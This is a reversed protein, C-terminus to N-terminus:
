PHLQLPQGSASVLRLHPEATSQINRPMDHRVVDNAREGIEPVSLYHEPAPNILAIRHSAEKHVTLTAAAICFLGFPKLSEASFLAILEQAAEPDSRDRETKQRVAAQLHHTANAMLSLMRTAERRLEPEVSTYPGRSQLMFPKLIKLEERFGVVGEATDHSKRASVKEDPHRFHGCVEAVFELPIGTSTITSM